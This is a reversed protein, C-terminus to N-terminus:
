GYGEYDLFKAEHLFSVKWIVELNQTLCAYPSYITLKM